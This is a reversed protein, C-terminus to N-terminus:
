RWKISLASGGDPHHRWRFTLQTRPTDFFDAVWAKLASFYITSFPGQYLSSLVSVTANLSRYKDPPRLAKKRLLLAGTGKNIKNEAIPRKVPRHQRNLGREEVAQV